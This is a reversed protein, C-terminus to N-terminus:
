VVDETMRNPGCSKALRSFGLAKGFNVCIGRYKLFQYNRIRFFIVRVLV